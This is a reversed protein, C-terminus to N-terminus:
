RIRTVFSRGTWNRWQGCIGQWWLKAGTSRPATKTPGILGRAERLIGGMNGPVGASANILSIAAECWSRRAKVETELIGLKESLEVSHRLTEQAGIIRRPDANISEVVGAIYLSFATYLDESGDACISSLRDLASAPNDGRTYTEFARFFGLERPQAFFHTSQRLVLSTLWQRAADADDHPPHVFLRIFRSLSDAPDVVAAYYALRVERFWERWRAAEGLDGTSLNQKSFAVRKHEELEALLVHAKIAFPEDHMFFDAAVAPRLSSTVRYGESSAEVYPSADLAAIARDSEIGPWILGLVAKFDTTSVSVTVALLWAARLTDEPETERLLALEVSEDQDEAAHLVDLLRM